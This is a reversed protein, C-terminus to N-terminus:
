QVLEPFSFDPAVDVPVDRAADLATRLEPPMKEYKAFWQEGRARDGNAEIELLEKALAAVAAPMSAYDVIYRGNTSDRTIARQEVFFNFEMMAGRGHSEATGFRVTRFCDAVHAAYAQELRTQPIAGKDVLWKLFFLGVIDAKAEELPSYLPGLAEQISVKGSAPHAFAPGLGHAIEHALTDDMYGSATANQADTARLLKRALPLVIYNVRADMFNKFFIKKTGKEEHIRPDNPLNDAVAQYGHNLDGGRFPADMVEMPTQRGTLSPLDAEPLPLAKQIDPVYKEFIALKKSEAENRILVAAGYSTKVGLLTDDYVEYPAFIVDFKPDKLDLWKLDSPYYDDTLLADARARLFDAFAPDGSYAAAGRLAAAAPQLFSRYAIHYSIGFLDEGQQRVVTYPSYIEAKKEPHQKVYTEIYERTLGQAYFGRGPPMPATGVFPKNDHLVDFRGANIFLLRRLKVDQPYTSGSLQDYLTLGEPDAQRWYIQELYQSAEVLKQVMDRERRTLATANFPMKVPKYQALQRDLDATIKLHPSIAAGSNTLPRTRKTAQSRKQSYAKGSIMLTALLLVALWPKM